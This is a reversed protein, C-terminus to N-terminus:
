KGSPEHKTTGALMTHHKAWTKQLTSCPLRTSKSTPTEIELCKLKCQPINNSM